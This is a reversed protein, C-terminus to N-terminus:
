RKKNVSKLSKWYKQTKYALEPTISGYTMMTDTLAQIMLDIIKAREKKTARNIEKQIFVKLNNWDHTEEWYQRDGENAFEQQYFKEEFRKVWGTYQKNKM